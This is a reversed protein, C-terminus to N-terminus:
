GDSRRCLANLLVREDARERRRVKKHASPSGCGQGRTEARSERERLSLCAEIHLTHNQEQPVTTIHTPPQRTGKERRVLSWSFSLLSCQDSGRVRLWVRARTLSYKRLSHRWVAAAYTTLLAILHPWHPAPASATRRRHGDRQRRASAILLRLSVLLRLPLLHTKGGRGGGISDSQRGAISQERAGVTLMLIFFLLSDEREEEDIVFKCADSSPLSYLAWFSCCERTCHPWDQLPM